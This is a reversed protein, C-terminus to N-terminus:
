PQVEYTTGQEVGDLWNVFEDWDQVWDPTTIFRLESDMWTIEFGDHSDWHLIVAYGTVVGDNDERSFLIKRDWSTVADKTRVEVLIKSM